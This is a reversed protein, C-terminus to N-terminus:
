RHQRPRASGSGNATLFDHVLVEDPLPLGASLLMAPWYVAHFRLINKGIVHVRRDSDQWWTRFADADPGTGYDLSTIDNGLADWWVYMVQSPDDPVPVGWGHTREVSRSISFDELGAAIFARVQNGRVGPEIRLKGSDILDALQDQYRSLRFFWNRASLRPAM